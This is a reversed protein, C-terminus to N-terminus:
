VSIIWRRCMKKGSCTVERNNLILQPQFSSVLKTANNIGRRPRSSLHDRNWSVSMSPNRTRVAPLGNAFCSTQDDCKDNVLFLCRDDFARTLQETKFPVTCGVTVEKQFVYDVQHQREAHNLGTNVSNLWVGLTRVRKSSRRWKGMPNKLPSNKKKKKLVHLFKTLISSVKFM